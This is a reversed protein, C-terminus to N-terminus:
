ESLLRYVRQVQTFTKAHTGNNNIVIDARAKKESLPDQSAIRSRIQAFTMRRSKRSRNFVKEQKAYVVIIRSFLKELKDEFLLPLDVVIVSNKERKQEEIQRNMESIILPHSIEELRKRQIPDGFVIDAIKERNLQNNKQVIEPGFLAIYKRYLPKDPATLDRSIQDVDITKAGLKSLMQAVTTKGTGFGGTLGIVMM